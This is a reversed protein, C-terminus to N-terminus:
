LETEPIDEWDPIVVPQGITLEKGIHLNLELSLEEGEFGRVYPTLDVTQEENFASDEEDMGVKVTLINEAVPSFGFVYLSTRWRNSDQKRAFVTTLSANGTRERSVLYRGTSVGSLTGQLSSLPVTNGSVNIQINLRQVFASPSVEVRKPNQYEPRESFMASCCFGQIGPIYAAGSEVTDTQVTLRAEHYNQIDSVKYNGTYFLFRYEGQPISWRLTDQTFTTETGSPIDTHGLPFAIM